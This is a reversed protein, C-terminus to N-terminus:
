LTPTVTFTLCSVVGDRVLCLPVSECFVAMKRDPFFVRFHTKKANSLLQIGKWFEAKRGSLERTIQTRSSLRVKEAPASPFWAASLRPSVFRDCLPANTRLRGHSWSPACCLCCVSMMLGRPRVCSLCSVCMMSFWLWMVFMVAECPPGGSTLGLVPPGFWQCQLASM